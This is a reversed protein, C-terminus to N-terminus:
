LGITTFGLKKKVTVVVILNQAAVVLAISVGAGMVGFFYTLVFSLIISLFGNLVTINRMEKEHGTMILLYGISGTIVNIFQGIALVRLLNAGNSFDHGFLTMIWTPFVLILLVLPTAVLTMVRTTTVAFKKLGAMDGEHYYTSFRPASVFNVAILIFSILMSTRQAVALVAIDAPKLFIGAIFQGGWQMLQQCIIIVWLSKSSNWFESSDFHASHTGPVVVRWAFFALVVTIVTTILYMWGLSEAKDPKFFIVALIVLVPVVVNLFLVSFIVKKIAQLAFGYINYVATFPIALTMFILVGKLLPKSFITASIFNSFGVAVFAFAISVIVSYKISAKLAGTVKYWEKNKSYVSIFRIIANDTGLRTINSFVTIFALALFFYGAETAGLRRSVVINMVFSAIAALGRITLALFSHLLLERNRSFTKKVFLTIRSM